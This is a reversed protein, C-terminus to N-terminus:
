SGWVFIFHCGSSWTENCLLINVLIGCMETIIIRRLFWSNSCTGKHQFVEQDGSTKRESSTTRLTFSIFLSESSDQSIDRLMNGCWCMLSIISALASAVHSSQICEQGRCCKGTRHGMEWKVVLSCSAVPVVALKEVLPIDGSRPVAEPTILSLSDQTM